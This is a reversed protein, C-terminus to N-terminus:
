RSVFTFRIPSVFRALRSSSENGAERGATVIIDIDSRMGEWLEVSHTEHKIDMLADHVIVSVSVLLAALRIHLAQQVGERFRRFAPGQRFRRPRDFTPRCKGPIT